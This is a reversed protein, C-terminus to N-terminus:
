RQRSLIMMDRLHKFGKKVHAALAHAQDLYSSRRICFTTLMPNEQHIFLQCVYMYNDVGKKGIESEQYIRTSM